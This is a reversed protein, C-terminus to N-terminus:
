EMLPLATHRGHMAPEFWPAAPERSQGKHGGPEYEPGEATRQKGQGGPVTVLVEPDGLQEVHVTPVSWSDDPPVCHSVQLGACCDRGAGTSATKEVRV